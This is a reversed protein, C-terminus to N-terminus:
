KKYLKEERAAKRTKDNERVEDMDIGLEEYYAELESDDGAEDAQDPDEDSELENDDDDPLDLEGTAFKNFVSEDLAEPNVAEEAEALENALEEDSSSGADSAVMDQDDQEEEVKKGRGQKGKAQSKNKIMQRKDVFQNKEANAQKHKKEIRQQQRKKFGQKHKSNQISKKIKTVM